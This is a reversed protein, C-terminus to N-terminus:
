RKAVMWKRFHRLQAGGVAEASRVIAKAIPAAATLVGTWPEASEIRTSGEAAPEFSFTHRAHLFGPIGGSWCVEHPARLREVKLVTPLAGLRVVMRDGERLPRSPGWVPRFLPPMWATWTRYDTFEAFVAEVSGPVTEEGRAVCSMTM